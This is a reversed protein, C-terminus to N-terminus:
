EFDKKLKIGYWIIGGLLMATVLYSAEFGYLGGNLVVRSEDIGTELISTPMKFGSVVVGLVGGLIFNWGSHLGSIIWINDHYYYMLSILVAMLFTNVISILSANSNSIHGLAFWISNVVIASIVGWKVSIQTFILGRLLFEEMFGQVTFGVFLLLFLLINFNSNFDFRVGGFLWNIGLILLLSIAGILWGIALNKLVNQNQMGLSKLSRKGVGMVFLLLILTTIVCAGLLSLIRDSTVFRVMIIQAAVFSILYIGYYVFLLRWSMKLTRAERIIQNDKLTM